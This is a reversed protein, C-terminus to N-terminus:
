GSIGFDMPGSLFRRGTGWIRGNHGHGMIACECSIVVCMCGLSMGVVTLGIEIEVLSGKCIGRCVSEYM